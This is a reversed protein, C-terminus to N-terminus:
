KKKKKKKITHTEETYDIRDMEEYGLFCFCLFAVSVYNQANEDNWEEGLWFGRRAIECQRM